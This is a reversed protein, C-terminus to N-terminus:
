HGSIKRFLWILITVATSLLLMSALPTYFKFNEKEIRVDGPLHGFWSFRNGFFLIIVGILIIVAGIIIVTKGISEM